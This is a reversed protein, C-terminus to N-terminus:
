TLCDVSIRVYMCTYMYLVCMSVCTYAKLSSVFILLSIKLLLLNYAYNNMLLLLHSVLNIYKYTIYLM